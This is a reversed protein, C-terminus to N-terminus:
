YSSTFFFFLVINYMLLIGISFACVCVCVPHSYESPRRGCLLPRKFSTRQLLIQGAFRLSIQKKFFFVFVFYLCHLALTSSPLGVTQCSLQMRLESKTVVVVFFFLFLFGGLIRFISPGCLDDRISTIDKCIQVTSIYTLWLLM